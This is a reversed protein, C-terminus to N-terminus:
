REGMLMCLSRSRASPSNPMDLSRRYLISADNGDDDNNDDDHMGRCVCCSRSKGLPCLESVMSNVELDLKVSVGLMAAFNIFGLGNTDQFFVCWRIGADFWRKATGPTM